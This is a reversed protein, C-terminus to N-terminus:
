KLTVPIVYTDEEELGKFNVEQATELLLMNISGDTNNIMVVGLHYIKDSLLMKVSTGKNFLQYQYKINNCGKIRIIELDKQLTHM